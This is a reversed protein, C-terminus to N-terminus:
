KLIGRHRILIKEVKAGEIGVLKKSTFSVVKNSKKTAM